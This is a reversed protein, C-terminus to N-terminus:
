YRSNLYLRDRANGGDCHLNPASHIISSVSSQSSSFMPLGTIPEECSVAVGAVWFQRSVCHSDGDQETEEGHDLLHRTDPTNQTISLQYSDATDMNVINVHSLQCRAPRWAPSPNVDDAAATYKVM